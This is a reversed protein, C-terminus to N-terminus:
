NQERLVKILFMHFLNFMFVFVHRYRIRSTTAFHLSMSLSILFTFHLSATMVFTCIRSYIKVSPSLLTCNGTSVDLSLILDDATSTSRRRGALAYQIYFCKKMAQRWRTCIFVGMCRYIGFAQQRSHESKFCQYSNKHTFGEQSCDTVSNLTLNNNKTLASFNINTNISTSHNPPIFERM